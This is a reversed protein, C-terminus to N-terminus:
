RGRPQPTQRTAAADMADANPLNGRPSVALTSTTHPRGSSRNQIHISESIIVAIRVAAAVALVAYGVIVFAWQNPWDELSTKPESSM